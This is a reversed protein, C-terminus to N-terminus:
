RLNCLLQYIIVDDTSPNVSEGLVIVEDGVNVTLDTVDVMSMSMCINGIVKAFSKGIKVMPTRLARVYGDNYGINIIAVDCDKDCVHRAGYGVVSGRKVHKKALVKATVTKAITLNEDGYGYLGLGVRAMDLHYKADLLVGSTNAVHKTINGFKRLVIKSCKAFYNLQEDCFIKNETCFHSFIGEVAINKGELQKLLVPLQEKSFGLRSMGSDIKIHVRATGKKCHSIIQLTDFSDLTLLFQHEIAIKTSRADQPLLILVDNGYKEIQLAESVDNVAFCDVVDHLCSAVRELGHGYADCKVVACLKTNGLKKRFFQANKIIADYNIYQM